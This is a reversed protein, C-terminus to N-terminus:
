FSVRLRGMLLQQMLAQKETKLRCLTQKLTEIENDAATLVAAIKQQEKLSPVSISIKFFDKPNLRKSGTGTMQNELGTYFWKQSCFYYFWVAHVSEQFDFTPIDQSTEFLDFKNPIIGFAGKHFNQKGYIFQGARRVFHATVNEAETGRQERHEIGNLNLKVTLRKGADNTVNHTIRSESLLSSIEKEEWEKGFREGNDNLLRKKGTLLQQMLAQKQQESNAILQETTRIANDWTTLIQAIKTQEPLPPVLAKVGLFEDQTINKMSGSTGTGLKSLVYRIYDSALVYSLWKMNTNIKPITQWLKDPLYLNPYDSEVFVSAGVLTETNSRSIIIQGAKPTTKARSLEDGKIGKAAYPNFFGYSVASVKLVAPNNLDSYDDEGNVSVGTELGNILNGVRQETWGNPLPKM